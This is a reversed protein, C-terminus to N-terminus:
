NNPDHALFSTYLYLYLHLYLIQHATAVRYLTGICTHVHMCNACTCLFFLFVQYVCVRAGMGRFSKWQWGGGWTHARKGVKRGWGMGKSLFRIGTPIQTATSQYLPPTPPQNRTVPSHCCITHAPPHSLVRLPSLFHRHNYTCALGM